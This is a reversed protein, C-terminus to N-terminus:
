GPRDQRGASQLSRLVLWRLDASQRRRGCRQGPADLYRDHFARGRLRYLQRQQGLATCERELPWFLSLGRGASIAGNADSIVYAFSASGYYGADPTYIISTVSSLALAGTADLTSTAGGVLTITGHDANGASQFTITSNEIDFDNKLLEIIPITLATDQNGRLDRALAADDSSYSDDRAVPPQNVAQYVVTATATSTGGNGDSVTYTFRANGNFNANPTFLVTGNDLLRASGGELNGVSIITLHDGEADTDNALLQSGDVIIPSNELIVAGHFTSIVDDSAVPPANVKIVNLSVRATSTAGSPDTITYDFYTAGSFGNHPTVTITGDANLVASVDASSTVSTLSLSDGDVDRDNALLTAPDIQLIQNQNTQFGYDNSAVPAHNVPTVTVYVTARAV